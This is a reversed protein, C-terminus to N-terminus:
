YFITHAHATHLLKFIALFGETIHHIINSFFNITNFIKIYIIRISQFLTFYGLYLFNQNFTVSSCNFALNKELYKGLSEKSVQFFVFFNYHM